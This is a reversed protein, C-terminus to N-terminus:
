PESSLGLPLPPPGPNAWWRDAVPLLRNVQNAREEFVRPGWMRVQRDDDDEAAARRRAVENPAPLHPNSEASRRLMETGIPPARPQFEFWDDYGGSALQGLRVQFKAGYQEARTPRGMTTRPGPACELEVTFSPGYRHFLFGLFDTADKRIRFFSPYTGEFDRQRLLPVTVAKLAADM